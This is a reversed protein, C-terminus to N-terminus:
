TYTQEKDSYMLRPNKSSSFKGQNDVAVDQYNFDATQEGLEVEQACIEGLRMFGFFCTLFAAWLMIKVHMIEGKGWTGRIRILM